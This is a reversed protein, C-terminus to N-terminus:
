GAPKKKFSALLAAVAAANVQVDRTGDGDVVTLMGRGAEVVAGFMQAAVVGDSLQVGNIATIVDRPGIGALPTDERAVSYGYLSGQYVFPTVRLARTVPTTPPSPRREPVYGFERVLRADNDASRSQEQVVALRAVGTLRARPMLLSSLQGARDIVVHDMHVAHLMAGGPLEEGVRYTLERAGREAILGLGLNPDDYAITGHLELQSEVAEGTAVPAAGFLHADAIAAVGGAVNLALVTSTTQHAAPRQSHVWARATVVTEAILGVGIVAIALHPLKGGVQNAGRAAGTAANRRASLTRMRREIATRVIALVGSYLRRTEACDTDL